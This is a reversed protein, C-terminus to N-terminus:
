TFGSSTSATLFDINFQRRSELAVGSSNSSVARRHRRSRSALGRFRTGSPEDLIRAFPSAKQRRIAPGAIEDLLFHQSGKVFLPPSELLERNGRGSQRFQDFLDAAPFQFDGPRLVNKLVMTSVFCDTASVM